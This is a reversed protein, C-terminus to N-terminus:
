QGLKFGPGSSGAAPKAAPAAAPAAPRPEADAAPKEYQVPTYDYRVEFKGDAGFIMAVSTWARQEPKLFENMSLVGEIIKQSDCPRVETGERDNADMTARINAEFNRSKGDISRGIEAVTVWAAFWDKPLGGAICSFISQILRVHPEGEDQQAAPKGAAPKAAAKAAPKAAPKTDAARAPLVATALALCAALCAILRSTM